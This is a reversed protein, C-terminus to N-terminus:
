DPMQLKLLAEVAAYLAPFYYDHNDLYTAEEKLAELLKKITEADM